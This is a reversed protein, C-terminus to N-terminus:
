VYLMRRWNAFLIFFDSLVFHRILAPTNYTCLRNEKSLYAHILRAALEFARSKWNSLGM